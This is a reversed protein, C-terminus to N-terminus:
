GFANPLLFTKRSLISFSSTSFPIVTFPFSQFLLSSSIFSSLSFILFFSSLCPSLLHCLPFFLFYLLLFSFSLPGCFSSSSSSSSSLLFLCIDPTKLNFMTWELNGCSVHKGLFTFIGKPEQGTPPKWCM